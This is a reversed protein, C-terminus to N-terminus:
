HMRSPPIARRRPMSRCRRGDVFPYHGYAAEGARHRRRSHQRMMASGQGTRGRPGTPTALTSRAALTALALSPGPAFPDGKKASWGRRTRQLSKLPPLLARQEEKILLLLTVMGFEIAVSYSATASSSTRSCGCRSVPVPRTLSEGGSGVGHNVMAGQGRRGRLSTPIALTSRTALTAFPDLGWEARDAADVGTRPASITKM